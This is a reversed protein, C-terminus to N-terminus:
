QMHDKLFAILQPEPQPMAYYFGQIFEIGLGEVIDSQEQTEVGEMIIDKDLHKLMNVLDLLVTYREDSRTDAILSRDIKITKFSDSIMRSLSSYGTGFDDLSVSFGSDTLIAINKRLQEESSAAATETIEFTIRNHPVFAADVIHILNLLHKADLCDLSSLNVHICDLGLSPFRPSSVFACVQRLVSETLQHILGADEAASVFVNPSISGYITNDLRALAEASHFARDSLSYIPQYCLYITEKRIANEVISTIDNSLRYKTADLMLEKTEYRPDLVCALTVLYHTLFAFLATIGTTLLCVLVAYPLYASLSVDPIYPLLLLSYVLTLVFLFGAAIATWYSKSKEVRTRALLKIQDCLLMARKGPDPVGYLPCRIKNAAFYRVLLSVPVCILLPVLLSFLLVLLIPSLRLATALRVHANLFRLYLGSLAGSAMPRMMAEGAYKTILLLPLMPAYLLYLATSLPNLVRNLVSAQRIYEIATEVKESTTVINSDDIPRSYRIKM